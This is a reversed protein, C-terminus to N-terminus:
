RALWRLVREETLAEAGQNQKVYAQADTATLQRGAILRNLLEPLVLTAGVPSTSDTLM